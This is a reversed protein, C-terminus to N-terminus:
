RPAAPPTLRAPASHPSAHATGEGPRALLGLALWNLRTAIAVTGTFAAAISWTHLSWPELVTWHTWPVLLRAQENIMATAPTLLLSQLVAWAAIIAHNRGASRKPSLSVVFLAMPLAALFLIMGHVLPGELSADFLSRGMWFFAAVGATVLFIEALSFQRSDSAPEQGLQSDAWRGVLRNLPWIMLRMLVLLMVGVAILSLLAPLYDALVASGLTERDYLWRPDVYLQLMCFTLSGLAILAVASLWRRPAPRAHLAIQLALVLLQALTLGAAASAVIEGDGRLRSLAGAWLTAFLMFNAGVLAFLNGHRAHATGSIM